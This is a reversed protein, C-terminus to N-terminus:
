QDVDMRDTAKEAEAPAEEKPSKDIHNPAAASSRRRAHSHRESPWSSGYAGGGVSSAATLRYEGDGVQEIVGEELAWKTLLEDVGLRQAEGKEMHRGVHETWDDWASPGDFTMGCGEKPCASHQPPRRRTVLCSQQLERVRADWEAESKAEGKQLARRIDHPAHMRRLHQTFLDKRNFENGKGDATSKSCSSCRYYTLCLHQSAIHRKWENKSGFTSNCGAFSFACPFPRTHAALIHKRLATHDKFPAHTCHNCRTEQKPLARRPAKVKAGPSIHPETGEGGDLSNALPRIHEHRQVEPISDPLTTRQRDASPHSSSTEDSRHRVHSLAKLQEAAEQMEVSDQGEDKPKIGGFSTEPSRNIAQFGRTEKSSMGNRYTVPSFSTEQSGPDTKVRSPSHAEAGRTDESRIGGDVKAFRSQTDGTNILRQYLHLMNHSNVFGLFCCVQDHQVVTWISHPMSILLMTPPGLFMGEVIINRASSPASQLWKNYFGMDPSAEGVFTTCVLVRAEHFRLGTLSGVKPSKSEQSSATEDAPEAVSQSATPLTINQGSGKTLTFFLPESLPTEAATVGNVCNSGDPSVHQKQSNIEELLRQVSFSRGNGLKRLADTLYSTFSRGEERNVRDPACAAIGQKTGHRGLAVTDPSACTDLLLFVDQQVDELLSRICAWKVKAADNRANSAWYLEEDSRLFGYGAYYIILLHHRPAHELFSALQQVLRLTPNADSSILWRQTHYHYDLQLVQDLADMDAASTPDDAWRLMMVSVNAQGRPKEADEAQRQILMAADQLHRAFSEFDYREPNSALATAAAAATTAADHVPYQPEASYPIAATHTHSSDHSHLTSTSTSSPNSIKPALKRKKTSPEM